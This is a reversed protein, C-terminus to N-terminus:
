KIAEVTLNYKENHYSYEPQNVKKIYKFGASELWRRLLWFDFQYRLGLGDDVNNGFLSRIVKSSNQKDNIYDNVQIEFDTTEIIIKGGEKLFTHWLKLTALMKNEPVCMLSHSSYIEDVTGHEVFNVALNLLSTIDDNVDAKNNYLDINIYGDLYHEGCGLNLKTM